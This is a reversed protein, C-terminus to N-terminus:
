RYKYFHKLYQQIQKDRRKRAQAALPDALRQHRQAEGTLKHYSAWRAADLTGDALAAAVACGPEGTHACDGYRCRAALGAIEEFVQDVSEKAAWLQLERMGPTDILAGGQPLVVLERHTTTHRGRSDSERVEATEFRDDGLLRNVITSKGAGSSGLLAVTVGPGLREALAQMGEGTRASCAIVPLAPGLAAAEAIREEVATSLDAKNLVIVPAAGSELTLTLYREIRRLNFDGDLGCVLFVLDINAAVPQQEERRGAARRSFLTRRPLVAEVIAQEPSLVRAAVWDGVVPMGSPDPTLYWLRGSPEADCEGAATYLRYLDRQSTAVRGLTLGQAAFPAFAGALEEGAFEPNM